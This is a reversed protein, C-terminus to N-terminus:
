FQSGSAIPFWHVVEAGEVKDKSDVIQDVEERVGREGSLLTSVLSNFHFTDIKVLMSVNWCFIYGKLILESQSKLAHDDRIKWPYQGNLPEHISLVM